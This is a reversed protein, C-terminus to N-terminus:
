VVSRRNGNSFIDILADRVIKAEPKKDFLTAKRRRAEIEVYNEHYLASKRDMEREYTDRTMIRGEFTIRRYDLDFQLMKYLEVRGSGDKRTRRLPLRINDQLVNPDARFKKRLLEFLAYCAVDGLDATKKINYRKLDCNHSLASGLQEKFRNEFSNGPMDNPYNVIVNFAYKDFLSRKRMDPNKKDYFIRDVLKDCYRGPSKVRHAIAYIGQAKVPYIINSANTVELGDGCAPCDLDFGAKALEDLVNGEQFDAECIYKKVKKEQRRKSTRVRTKKGSDACSPCKSIMVYTRNIKGRIFTKALTTGLHELMLDPVLLDRAVIERTERIYSADGLLEALGEKFEDGSREQALKTIKGVLSPIRKDFM